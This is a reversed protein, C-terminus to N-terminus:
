AREIVSLAQPIAAVVDGAIVGRENDHKLAAFHGCTGHIYAGVLAASKASVGGARLGAIIGALVDGTGATALATSKFPMVGVPENDDSAIVTHAGKLVVTVGWERAKQQAIAIRDAQVDEVRVRCLRAMEGPHPTLISHPPLHDLMDDHEAIINLADADIVLPPLSEQRLLERLFQRTGDSLGLGPGILLADYHAIHPALDDTGTRSIYGSEEAIEIFIPERQSAAISDVVVTISAIAVLGAGARYAAEASLVPAGRYMRSGGVILVKGFTGKNGDPPRHPLHERAHLSTTLTPSPQRMAPLDDPIGLPAIVLDGVHAAGPFLVQGIKPAIFTITVDARIAKRDIQGDDCDLGSPCDIALVGPIARAPQISPSAPHLAMNPPITQRRENMGQHVGRLIKEASGEIPLRVGIGFLADIILDASAVMHRLVRGDDDAAFAMFVNANQADAFPWFDDSPRSLLYCRVDINGQEVLYRAVVLGDGGNNGKGILLTVRPEPIGEIMKLAQRAAMIGARTMMEAYSIGSKDAQAEIERMQSVTVLKVM